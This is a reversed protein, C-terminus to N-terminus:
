LSITVYPPAQNFQKLIIGNEQSNKTDLTPQAPKM